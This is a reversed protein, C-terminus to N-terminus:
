EATIVHERETPYLQTFGYFHRDFSIDSDGMEVQWESLPDNTLASLFSPVGGGCGVLAVPAIDDNYCSPVLALDIKIHTREQGSLEKDITARLASLVEDDPRGEPLGTIRFVISGPANM